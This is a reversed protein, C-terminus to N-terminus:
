RPRVLALAHGATRAKSPALHRELVACDAKVLADATALGGGVYGAVALRAWGSLSAVLGRGAALLERARQLQIGVVQRLAPSTSSALLDDPSVGAARLDVQPLYVRGARADEGVDQCHELVQLGNCVDDSASIRDDSATGAVALVVRGVPAASLNCYGILDEFTEYNGVQQDIRNAQVLDLLWEVPVGAELLPVAGRVPALQAKGSAARRVDQDILDLLALRDGAAEDGVDDVFRAYAYLRRLQDRARRPVVRMAVPFNEASMQAASRAAIRDLEARDVARDVSAAGRGDETVDAEGDPSWCISLDVLM